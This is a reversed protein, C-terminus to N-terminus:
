VTRIVEVWRPAIRQWSYDQVAKLAKERLENRLDINKMFTLIQKRLDKEDNAKFLLGGGYIELLRGMGGTNSAIVPLGCAWAELIVRPLGEERGLLGKRSPVVLVDHRSMMRRTDEVTMEGAFIANVQYIDKLNQLKEFSPGDGIITIEVGEIKSLSKLLLDVGKLKNLRGVYLIKLHEPDMLPAVCPRLDVGLPVVDVKVNEALVKIKNSIEDSVCVVKDANRLIINTLPNLINSPASHVVLICPRNTMKSLIVGVAGMPYIWHAVIVDCFLVKLFAEMTFGLLAMPMSIASLPDKKLNEEIGYKHFAASHWKLHSPLFSVRPGQPDDYQGEWEETDKPHPVAVEIELGENMLAVALDRIFCGRYDGIKLPYSSTLFLIKM